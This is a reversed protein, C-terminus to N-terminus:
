GTGLSAELAKRLEAYRFTYGQQVAVQPVVRQGTVLMEAMEGLLLRLAIAPVPAWSPRHLARGLTKCFERMTVPHPATANVPGRVGPQTLSWKILRVVDERHIWSVWQRGSGLPGGAFFRFPPIMKALAGGGADLVVGIRLRVVRVGFSEARQAEAEWARCAEALFGDGAPAQEDLWEDGHAGYFGIASANVLVAPKEPAVALASVVRRTTEVRSERILLKQRPTWRKAAVSEGALNVIGGCEELARQWAGTKWSVYRLRNGAAQRLSAPLPSEPRRTVVWLDHGDDALAQCLPAGIFGTGGVVLLKM